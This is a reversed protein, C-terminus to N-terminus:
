PERNRDRQAVGASPATLGCRLNADM